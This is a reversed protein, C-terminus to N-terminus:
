NMTTPQSTKQKGDSDQSSNSNSNRRANQGSTTINQERERTEGGPGQLGVTSYKTGQIGLSKHGGGGGGRSNLCCEGQGRVLFAM